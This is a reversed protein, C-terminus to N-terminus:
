SVHSLATCLSLPNKLFQQKKTKKSSDCLFHSEPANGGDRGELLMESHRWEHAAAVRLLCLRLELNVHSSVDLQPKVKVIRKM